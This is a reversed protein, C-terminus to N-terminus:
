ASRARARAHAAVAQGDVREVEGPARALEVHGGLEDLEGALDVLLHGVVADRPDLAREVVRGLRDAAAADGDEAHAVLGADPSMRSDGASFIM